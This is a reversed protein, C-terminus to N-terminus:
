IIDTQDRISPIDSDPSNYRSKIRIFRKLKDVPYVNKKILYINM